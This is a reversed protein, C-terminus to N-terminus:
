KLDEDRTVYEFEVSDTHPNYLIRENNRKYIECEGCNKNTTEWGTNLLKDLTKLTKM